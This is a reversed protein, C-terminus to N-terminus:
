AFICEIARAACALDPVVFHAKPEVVQSTDAAILITTAGVSRGFEIDTPKDGIVMADSPRFHLEAAARLLLGPKPKRCDCDAEPAHPCFYIHELRVGLDSVMQHLKDHIADLQSLSLFGRGVGSQNTIVVLRYGHEYFWRLGEAAGALLEVGNPDSLYNRDVIITGDRDLIVVKDTTTSQSM